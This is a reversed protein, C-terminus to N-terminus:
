SPPCGGFPGSTLLTVEAALIRASARDELASRLGAVVETAWRDAAARETLLRRARIVWLALMLGAAASGAALAPASGPALDALTRGLTLAVGAGFVTGLLTALRGELAAPRPLPRGPLVVPELWGGTDGLRLTLEAEAEAAVRAIRRRASRAFDEARTSAAAGAQLEARLATCSARIATVSELRIQQLRIRAALDPGTGNPPRGGNGVPSVRVPPGDTAARVTDVLDDVRAPGVVPAAAVGVWQVPLTARNFELVSRWGRHVDIKSVAAVVPGTHSATLRAQSRTMPAAASVVLVLLVVSGAVGSDPVGESVEYGPLRLRLAAAVSTTGASPPGVVLV